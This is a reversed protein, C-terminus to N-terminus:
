PYPLVPDPEKVVVVEEKADGEETYADKHLEQMGLLCYLHGQNKDILDWEDEWGGPMTAFAGAQAIRGGITAIKNHAVDIGKKYDENASKYYDRM